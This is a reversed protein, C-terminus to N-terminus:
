RAYARLNGFCFIGVRTFVFEAGHRSAYQDFRFHCVVPKFQRLLTVVGFRLNDAYVIVRINLFTLDPETEPRNLVGVKASANLPQNV